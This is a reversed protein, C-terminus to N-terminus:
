VEMFDEKGSYPVKLWRDQTPNYYIYGDSVLMVDVICPVEWFKIRLTANPEFGNPCVEMPWTQLTDKCFQELEKDM